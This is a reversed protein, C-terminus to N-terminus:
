RVELGGDVAAAIMELDYAFARIRDDPGQDLRYLRFDQDAAGAFAQQAALFCEWSHTTAFVQTGFERAAQDIARWIDALVLHHLGNEIEDILVVGGPAQAIALIFSALRVSGDGLFVLPIPGPMGVLDAHLMTEGGFTLLEVGQVRKDLIQLAQVLRDHQGAKRLATFRDSEEALLPRLRSSLFISQYDTSPVVDVRLGETDLIAYAVRESGAESLQLRLVQVLQGASAGTIGGNTKQPLMLRLERLEDDDHLVKLKLSREHGGEDRMELTIERQLDFARFLPLWPTDVVPIQVRMNSLGRFVNLRLALEPNYSTCVFLAELLATKGVNNRGTILNIRALADLQLDDFCRFNSIRFYTLM